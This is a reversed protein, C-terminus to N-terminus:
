KRWGVFREIILIILIIFAVPPFILLFLRFILSEEIHGAFVFTLGDLFTSILSLCTFIFLINNIRSDSIEQLREKGRDHLYEFVDLKNIFFEEMQSSRWSTSAENYIFHAFPALNQLYNQKNLSYLEMEIRLKNIWKIARKIRRKQLSSYSALQNLRKYLIDNFVQLTRYEIELYRLTEKAYILESDNLNAWLSNGWGIHVFGQTGKAFNIGGEPHSVEVIEKMINDIPIVEDDRVKNRVLVIHGWLPIGSKQKDFLDEYTMLAKNIEFDETVEKYAKFVQLSTAETARVLTSNRIIQDLLDAMIKRPKKQKITMFDQKFSLDVKCYLMGVGYEHFSMNELIIVPNSNFIDGGVVDIALEIKQNIEITIISKDRKMAGSGGTGRFLLEDVVSRRKEKKEAKEAMWAKIRKFPAEESAFKEILVQDSCANQLKACLLKRFQDYKGILCSYDLLMNSNFPAIVYFSYKPKNSIEM